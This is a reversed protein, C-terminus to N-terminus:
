CLALDLYRGVSRPELRLFLDPEILEVEMLLPAADSRTVLDVRAYAPPCPLLDLVNAGYREIWEPGDVAAATGGYHGQVRFQGPMPMKRVVHSLRGGLFVASLEGESEIAPEYRQVLVPRRGLEAGAVVADSLTPCLKTGRGGAGVTPKVVVPGVEFVERLLPETLGEGTESSLTVPIVVGREALELLYRKDSNWGLLDVSNVFSTVHAGARLWALFDALRESYDWPAHLLVSRYGGWDVGEGAWDVLEAAVGRDQAAAIVLDADEMGSRLRQCTALAISAVAM